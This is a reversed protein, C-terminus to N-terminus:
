TGNNKEVYNGKEIAINKPIDSEFSITNKIPVLAAKSKHISKESLYFFISSFISTLGIVTTVINIAFTRYVLALLLSLCFSCLIIKLKKHNILQNSLRSLNNLKRKSFYM